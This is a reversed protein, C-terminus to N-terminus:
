TRVAGALHPMIDRAVLDLHEMHDVVSNLLLHEAGSAVIEALRDLCEDVGGWVSVRAAMDANGYRRGFWTRLRQEARAKNADVALYVRKSITFTTPDRKAEDLFGRISVAQAKFETTSSSGAGM